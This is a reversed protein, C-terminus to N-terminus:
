VTSRPYKLGGTVRDTSSTTKAEHQQHDPVTPVQREV